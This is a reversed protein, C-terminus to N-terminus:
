TEPRESPAESNEPTSMSEWSEKPIPKSVALHLKGHKLDLTVLFRRLVEAGLVGSVRVNSAGGLREPGDRRVSATVGRLDFPGLQMLPVRYRDMASLTGHADFSMGGSDQSWQRDAVFRRGLMLPGSFGSDLMLWLKEGDVTARVAPLGPGRASRMEVNATDKLEFTDFSAFRIRSNAYDIQLVFSSLIGTGIVIKADGTDAVPVSRLTLPAGFLEIPVRVALPLKKKSFVGQIEVRAVSSLKIGHAEAFERDIVQVNAGTDFMATTQVGAVVIPVHIWGDVLEFPFWKTLWPKANAGSAAFLALACLLAAGPRHSM